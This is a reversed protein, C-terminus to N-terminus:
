NLRPDIPYNAIIRYEGGMETLVKRWLKDPDTEFFSSIDIDAIFWAKQEIEEKLQENTWGSYGLFFRIETDKVEGKDILEKLKEFSGTWYVNNTVKVSGELKDGLTHLYHLTDQEVPGGIFVPADIRYEEDIVDSLKLITPKNLVFGFAGEQNFECLLIVTREFNPDNLFPESILLKGKSIEIKNEAM